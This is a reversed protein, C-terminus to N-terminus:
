PSFEFFNLLNMITERRKLHAYREGIGKVQRVVFRYLEDTPIVFRPTQKIIILREVVGYKRSLAEIFRAIRPDRIIALCIDYRGFICTTVFGHAFDLDDDFVGFVEAAHRKNGATCTFAYGNSFLKSLDKCLKTSNTEIWVLLRM